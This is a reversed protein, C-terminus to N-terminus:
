KALRRLLANVEGCLADVNPVIGTSARQKVLEMVATHADQFTGCQKLADHVDGWIVEGSDLPLKMKFLELLVLIMDVTYAIFVRQVEPANDIVVNSIWNLFLFTLGLIAAPPAMTAAAASCLTVFDSIKSIDVAPSHHGSDKLDKVVFLLLQVLKDDNLLTTTNESRFNWCTVIDEHVKVLCERLLIRGAAGPIIGRLARWYRAMGANVCAEVKLPINTQQAAAWVAWVRGVVIKRTIEVLPNINETFGRRVSVNMYSPVPINLQKAANRLSGVHRDLVQQASEPPNERRLLRDFQTFVVVVPIDREHALKLFDEVGREVVLGGSPSTYICLWAAHLRDKLDLDKESKELVFDRVISVNLTSAAEFGQSDHLVFRANTASKFESYINAPGPTYQSVVAEKINFVHNILSSKGAGSKGVSLIRFRPCEQLIEEITKENRYDTAM